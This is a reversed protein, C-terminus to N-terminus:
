IAVRPVQCSVKGARNNICCGVSVDMRKWFLSRAVVAVIAAGGRAAVITVLTSTTAGSRGATIPLNWCGQQGQSSKVREGESAM